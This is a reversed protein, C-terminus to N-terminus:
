PAAGSGLGEGVHGAVPIAYHMLSDESTPHYKPGYFELDCGLTHRLGSNLLWSSYVYNVTQDVRSVAGRHAFKAYRSAPVTIEVMGEPAFGFAAVEVAAWYELLDNHPTQQHVVGYFLKPVRGAIEDSRALFSDWLAPLKHALNNKESDIGFFQTRMGVLKLTRQTYITPNLSVGRHLHDLYDADFRIKQAFPFGDSHRRYEAPTVGFALKFARTFSEQSEFGADLAIDLIRAPTDRLKQLSKSFRRSRIYTKLTENTLAKFIRQFHWRSLGAYRAVDAADISVELNAEIYDIGREIQTLYNLSM